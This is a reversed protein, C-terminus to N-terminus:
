THGKGKRSRSPLPDWTSIENKEVCRTDPTSKVKTSGFGMTGKSRKSLHLMAERRRRDRGDIALVTLPRTPGAPFTKIEMVQSSQSPENVRRGGGKDLRPIKGRHRPVDQEAAITTGFECGRNTETPLM